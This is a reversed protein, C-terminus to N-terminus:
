RQRNGSQKDSRKALILVVLQPWLCWSRSEWYEERHRKIRPRNRRCGLSRVRCEVVRSFDLSPIFSITHHRFTLTFSDCKSALRSQRGICCSSFEARSARGDTDFRHNCATEVIRHICPHLLDRGLSLAENIHVTGQASM